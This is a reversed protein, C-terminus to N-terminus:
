RCSSRKSVSSSVTSNKLRTRPSLRVECSFCSRTAKMRASHRATHAARSPLRRPGGHTRRVFTDAQGPTRWPPGAVSITPDGTTPLIMASVTQSRRNAVCTDCVAMCAAQCCTKIRRRDVRQRPWGPPVAEQRAPSGAGAIAASVASRALILAQAARTVRQRQAVAVFVRPQELTM